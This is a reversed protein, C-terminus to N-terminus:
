TSSGFNRSAAAQRVLRERFRPAKISSLFSAGVVAFAALAAAGHKRSRLAHKMLAWWALTSCLILGAVAPM